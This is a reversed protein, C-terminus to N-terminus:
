KAIFMLLINKMLQNIYQFVEDAQARQSSVQNTDQAVVVDIPQNAAPVEDVQSRQRSVKNTKQAVDANNTDEQFMISIYIDLLKYKKIKCYVYSIINKMLQNIYQFVEDAQARQSSVQNTDQAVVVDIPQNAAPVEDVQSRQRSVKNTKQAVDANYTDEQFM